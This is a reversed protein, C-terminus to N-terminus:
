QQQGKSDAPRGAASVLHEPPILYELQAWLGASEMELRLREMRTDIEMRRAELAALLTGAGGRYAAISARTRETTLPILSDEFHTMRDQLSQWQQLWGQAESFHERTTEERQARLQEVLAMKASVERDQRNKQDLQLPISVNVSVMNSYAPGRQSYMLEVSLDPKKYSRAIDAEALAVAEQSLMLAIQPHHKLHTGLDGSALRVNTMDPPTALVEEANPGIWRALRTKATTIQLEIQRIRDDLQAVASRATFVDAQSGRGGRYAAEAAEIQLTTETRQLVLLERMRERYYRDLWAVAVGQQLTSLALARGNLAVEMEREFRASRAKRKAERTFEQMVGVSRMTMFDRTLSFRDAGNIPLNYIGGKLVPDPLQQAALAMENAADAAFDQAKLVSSRDAALRLAEDLTLRQQANVSFSITTLLLAHLALKL